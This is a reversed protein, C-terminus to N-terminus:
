RLQLVHQVPSLREEVRVFRVADLDVSTVEVSVRARLEYTDRTRPFLVGLFKETRVHHRARVIEIGVPEIRICQGQVRSRVSEPVQRFVDGFARERTDGKGTLDLEITATRM